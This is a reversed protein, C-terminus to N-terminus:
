GSFQNFNISVESIVGSIAFVLVRILNKLMYFRKSLM